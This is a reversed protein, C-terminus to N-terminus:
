VHWGFGGFDKGCTPSASPKPLLFINQLKLLLPGVEIDSSGSYLLLMDHSTTRIDAQYASIQVEHWKVAEMSTAMDSCMNEITSEDLNM